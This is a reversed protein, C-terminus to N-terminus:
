KVEEYDVDTVDDAGGANATQKAGSNQDGGATSAQQAAAQFVENLKQTAADLAAINQTSHAEKVDKIAAEIESKKDAPIKDGFEAMQKEVQFVMADAQNLKEVNEKAIKDADANAEAEAKMREIEEKSLGSSAEIRIKQEKNTAKDKASVNLIGNADIDFTVEIQPEGRRAPPIGDLHFRGITKNDKAM